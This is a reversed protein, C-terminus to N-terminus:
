ATDEPSGCVRARVAVGRRSVHVLVRVRGPVAAKDVAAVRVTLRDRGPSRVFHMLASTPGFTLTCGPDVPSLLWHMRGGLINIRDLGEAEGCVQMELELRRGGTRTNVSWIQKLGADSVGALLLRGGVFVGGTVGSPPVAGTLRRAAKIAPGTPGANAATVDSTRYALLDNGSSTWILRGNPSTEAWMAKPIEAKDLKVYYRWALTAPDAVGFSGTGCTNSPNAGPSYCELPLIVRGGDGPNWTPDGIHNYGESAKVAAPIATGVASVQKLTPTTSWLGVFPGDFYVVSKSPNSTLGQWYAVPVSSAGTLIWRGPDAARAAQVPTAVSLAVAVLAILRGRKM